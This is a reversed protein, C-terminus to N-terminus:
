RLAPHQEASKHSLTASGVILLSFGHGCIACPPLNVPTSTFCHGVFPLTEPATCMPSHFSTRTLWQNVPPGPLVRVQLWVTILPLIVFIIMSRAPNENRNSRTRQPKTLDNRTRFQHPPM